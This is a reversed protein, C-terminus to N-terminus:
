SELIKIAGKNSYLNVHSGGNGIIGRVEQKFQNWTAQNLQVTLPNLTIYHESTVVGQQTKAALTAHTQPPFTIVITGYETRIDITNALALGLCTVKIDGSAEAKISGSVAHLLVSGQHTKAQVCGTLHKVKISGSEAISLMVNCNKPVFLVYDVTGKADDAKYVTGVMIKQPSVAEVVIDIHPIDKQSGSKTAEITCKSLAWTKVTVSGRVNTLTIFTGPNCDIETYFTEHEIGFVWSSVRSYWSQKQVKGELAVCFICASLLFFSYGKIYGQLSSVMNM